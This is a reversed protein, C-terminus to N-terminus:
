IISIAAGFAARQSKQVSGPKNCDGVIRFFHGQNSFSLALDAKPKMGVCIVVQGAPIFHECGEADTYRVGEETIETVLANVIPTLNKEAEWTEMLMSYYHVPTADPAIRDKMELVTVKKGCRALHIALEIGIEGGGVVVIEDPLEKAKPFAEMCTIVNSGNIGPIPPLMPESGVAAIVADYNEKELLDPTTNCGLHVTINDRKGVQYVLWNKFDTLTWKFPVDDMLNILGGLRDQSEYLDVTHGRDAAIIAARMGTPGGGIIAVRRRGKVPLIMRNIKHEFGWVPNVSCVSAWPDTM